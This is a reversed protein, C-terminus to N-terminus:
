VHLSSEFSLLYLDLTKPHAAATWELMNSAFYDSIVFLAAPVWAYLLLKREQAETWVIRIALVLFSALGLFSLWAIVKPSYHLFRFDVAAFVAACALVFAADAWSPRVRFHLIVVSALGFAFFADVLAESYFQSSFALIGFIGALLLTLAVRLTLNKSIAM